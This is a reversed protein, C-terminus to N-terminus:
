NWLGKAKIFTKVYPLPGEHRSADLIAKIVYETQGAPFYVSRQIALEYNDGSELAFRALAWSINLADDKHVFARNELDARTPEGLTTNLLQIFSSNPSSSVVVLGGTLCNAAELLVDNIADRKLEELKEVYRTSLQYKERDM